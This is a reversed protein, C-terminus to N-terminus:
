QGDFGCDAAAQRGTMAGAALADALGLEGNAAGAVAMGAPLDGPVFAALRESWVPRAGLHSALHVSPSWGGSVGVLDWTIRDSTGAATRVDVARVHTSGRARTIAGGAILRAHAAKAAAEVVGSSTARPDVVAAVTIGARALDGVTRATEDSNGF